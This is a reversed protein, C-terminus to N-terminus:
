GNLIQQLWERLNTSLYQQIQDGWVDLREYTGDIQHSKQDGYIASWAVRARVVNHNGDLTLTRRWSYGDVEVEIIAKGEQWGHTARTVLPSVVNIFSALASDMALHLEAKLAAKDTEYLKRLRFGRIDRTIEEHWM